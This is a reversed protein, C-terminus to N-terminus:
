QRHVLGAVDRGVSWDPGGAPALQSRALVDAIPPSPENRVAQEGSGRNQDDVGENTLASVEGLQAPVPFLGRKLGLEFLDPGVVEAQGVEVVPQYVVRIGELLGGTAVQVEHRRAFDHNLDLVLRM